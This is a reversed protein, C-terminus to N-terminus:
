FTYDTYQWVGNINSMLRVYITKGQPISSVLQSTTYLYPSKYVDYKGPGIASVFLSYITVGQGTTWQFNVSAPLPGTTPFTLAAKVPQAATYTYDVYQWVGNVNTLLRVYVPKGTTPLKSFTVSTGYLYGSSYLESGGPAVVSISLSYTQAAGGTTWSFTQSPYGLISGPAPSIMTAFTKNVVLKGTV